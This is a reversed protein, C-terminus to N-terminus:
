DDLAEVGLEEVAQEGNLVGEANEFGALLYSYPAATDPNALRQIAYVFDHATIQDGNSWTADERMKITYTLGDESVEPLSEALAP